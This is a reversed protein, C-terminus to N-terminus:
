LSRPVWDPLEVGYEHMVAFYDLGERGVISLDAGREILVRANDWRGILSCEVIPSRGFENEVNISFGLDILRNLVHPEGELAYWHLMTEGIDTRSTKCQEVLTTAPIRGQELMQYLEIWGPQHAM